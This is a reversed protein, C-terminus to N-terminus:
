SSSGAAYLCALAKWMPTCGTVGGSCSRALYQLSITLPLVETVISNAKSSLCRWSLTANRTAYSSHQFSLLIITDEKMCYEHLLGLCLASYQAMCACRCDELVGAAVVVIAVHLCIKEWSERPLLLLLDVPSLATTFSAFCGQSGIMHVNM